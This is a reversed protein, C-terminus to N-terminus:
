NRHLCMIIMILIDVNFSDRDYVTYSHTVIVLIVLVNISLVLLLRFDKALSFITHHFLCLALIPLTYYFFTNRQWTLNFYCLIFLSILATHYQTMTEVVHYSLDHTLMTTIFSSVLSRFLSLAMHNHTMTEALSVTCLSIFTILSYAHNNYFIFICLHSSLISIFM